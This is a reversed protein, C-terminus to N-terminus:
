ARCIRRDDHATPYTVLIFIEADRGKLSQLRGADVHAAQQDNTRALGSAAVARHDPSAPRVRGSILPRLHSVVGSAMCILSWLNRLM